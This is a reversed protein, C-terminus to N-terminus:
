IRFHDGRYAVGGGFLMSAMVHIPTLEHRPPTFTPPKSNLFLGPKAFAKPPAHKTSNVPTLM